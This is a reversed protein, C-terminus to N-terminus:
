ARWPMLFDTLKEDAGSIPQLTPSLGIENVTGNPCQLMKAMM